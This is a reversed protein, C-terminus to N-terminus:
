AKPRFEQNSHRRRVFFLEDEAEFGSGVDPVQSETDVASEDPLWRQGAKGRAVVVNPSAIINKPSAVVNQSVASLPSRAALSRM